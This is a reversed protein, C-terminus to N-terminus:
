HWCVPFSFSLFLWPSVLRVPIPVHLSTLIYCYGFSCIFVHFFPSISHFWLILFASLPWHSIHILLYLVKLLDKRTFVFSWILCQRLIFWSSFALPLLFLFRNRLWASWIAQPIWSSSMAIDIPFLLVGSMYFLIVFAHAQPSLDYSFFRFYGIVGAFSWYSTSITNFTSYRSMCMEWQGRDAKRMGNWREMEGDRWREMKGNTWRKMRNDKCVSM